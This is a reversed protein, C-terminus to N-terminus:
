RRSMASTFSAVSCRRENMRMLPLGPTCSCTCFCDPLFVTSTAWPTFSSTSRTLRSTGPMWIITICSLESKMSRAILLTWSCASM